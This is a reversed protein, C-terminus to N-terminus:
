RSVAQESESQEPMKAPFGLILFLYVLLAVLVDFLITFLMVRPGIPDFLKGILLPVLMGGASGGVLFFGMEQGGIKMRRGAFTLVMPYVSSLSLGLCATAVSIAMLSTSWLIAITISFLCGILDILLITRPRLRTAIPVGLLRGATLAGWFLSTVNAATNFDGLNMRLVFTHILGGFGLEAGIDLALLLAILLVLSYKIPEKGSHEQSAREPQPSPLRLLWLMAPLTLIALALYPAMMNGSMPLTWKIILPSLVGGLGFFFHLANMYPAVRSQHVWVLLANGGVGVAGEALGLILMVSLLITLTPVLPMLALTVAMALLTACMLNHGSLRDYYRGSFLSGLLFGFSRVTFLYSIDGTGVHTQAALGPLTPGLAAMAMGLAIFSVFYSITQALKLNKL